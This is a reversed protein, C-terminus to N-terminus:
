IITTMVKRLKYKNRESILISVRIVSRRRGLIVIVNASSSACITKLKVHDKHTTSPTIAIRSLRVLCYRKRDHSFWRRIWVLCWHLQTAIRPTHKMLTWIICSLRMTSVMGDLHAMVKISALPLTLSRLSQLRRFETWCQCCICCLRIQDRKQMHVYRRKANSRSKKKTFMRRNSVWVHALHRTCWKGIVAATSQKYIVISCLTAPPQRWIFSACTLVMGLLTSVRLQRARCTSYPRYHQEQYAFSLM